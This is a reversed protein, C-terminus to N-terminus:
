IYTRKTSGNTIDREEFAHLFSLKFILYVDRVRIISDNQLCKVLIFPFAGVLKNLMEQIVFFYRKEGEAEFLLGIFLKDDPSKLVVSPAHFVLWLLTGVDIDDM